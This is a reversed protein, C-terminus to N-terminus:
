LRKNNLLMHSKFFYFEFTIETLTGPCMFCTGKVLHCKVEGPYTRHMRLTNVKFTSLCMLLKRKCFMSRAHWSYKHQVHGSGYYIKKQMKENNASPKSSHTNGILNQLNKCFYKGKICAISHFIISGINVTKHKGWIFPIFCGICVRHVFNQHVKWFSSLSGSCFNFVTKLHGYTKNM